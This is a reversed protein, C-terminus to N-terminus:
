EFPAGTGTARYRLLSMRPPLCALPIPARSALTTAEFAKLCPQRRRHSRLPALNATRAHSGARSSTSATTAPAHPPLVRTSTPTRMSLSRPTPTRTASSTVASAATTDAPLTTSIESAPQMTVSQPNRTPSNQPKDTKVAMLLGLRMKKGELAPPYTPRSGGPVHRSEM